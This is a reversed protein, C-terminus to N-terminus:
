IAPVAGCAGEARIERRTPRAQSKAKRLTPRRLVEILFGPMAPAALALERVANNIVHVLL